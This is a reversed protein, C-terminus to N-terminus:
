GWIFFLKRKISTKNCLKIKQGKKVTEKWLWKVGWLIHSNNICVGRRNGQHPIWGSLGVPDNYVVSNVVWKVVSHSLLHSLFVSSLNISDILRIFPASHLLWLDWIGKYCKLVCVGEGRVVRILVSQIILFSFTNISEKKPQRDMRQSLSM